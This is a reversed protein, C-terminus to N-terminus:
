ENSHLIEKHSSVVMYRDNGQIHEAESDYGVRQLGMSQLRSLEEM